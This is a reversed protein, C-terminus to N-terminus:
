HLPLDYFLYFNQALLLLLPLLLFCLNEYFFLIGWFSLISDSLAIMFEGGRTLGKIFNSDRSWLINQTQVALILNEM